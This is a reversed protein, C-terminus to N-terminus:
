NTQKNQSTEASNTEHTDSNRNTDQDHDNGNQTTNRTQKTERDSNNLPRKDETKVTIYVLYYLNYNVNDDDHSPNQKKESDSNYMKVNGIMM